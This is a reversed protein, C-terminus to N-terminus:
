AAAQTSSKKGLLATVAVGAIALVVQLAGEKPGYLGGDDGFVRALISAIVTGVLALVPALWIANPNRGRLVFGGIGGIVIAIVVAIVFNIM